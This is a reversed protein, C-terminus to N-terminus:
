KPDSRSFIAGPGVLYWLAKWFLANEIRRVKRRLSTRRDGDKEPSRLIASLLLDGIRFPGPLHDHFLDQHKELVHAQLGCRVRRELSETLLSEPRVRYEFAVADLRHFRWGREAVHIWFEWDELGTMAGDFGGVDKWTEKRLVACADVYNGGLMKALEFEPVHVRGTRAGFHHRDGYVVGFEDNRELFRVAEEAFGPRIKNDADVPLIYRGRAARIATNRAESLGRNEQDIVSYGLSRLADLIELTRPESSGDNVVILESGEPASREVSAVADVLFDGDDFCPIVFSLLLPDGGPVPDGPGLLRSKRPEADWAGAGSVDAERDLEELLRITDPAVAATIPIVPDLRDSTRFIGSDFVKELDAARPRLGLREELLARFRDLSRSLADVNVLLSRDRHRRYFDLLHRNYFTWIRHAYEPHRLFVAGGTRQMSDAVEWPFRYVLVYRADRLIPDWFDLLLTTRPDKWGWVRLSAKRSAVLSRATEEFRSFRSRDLRENETWGWDPHGGDRDDCCEELLSRQFELFDVDEFYGRPNRRDAPVLERGVDVGLEALLSAVLSTGSRHMGTVVVATSEGTM